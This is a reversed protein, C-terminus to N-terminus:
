QVSTGRSSSGGTGPSPAQSGGSSPGMPESLGDMLGFGRIALSTQWANELAQIYNAQLQFWTRQSILVQPYAAAMKQYSMQYLKYAQEARPLMELKYQQVTVRASEYDRFLTAVDRAIQLKLRALEHKTSEIEARAVAVNGQNRNFIPLQVGIQAGGQLGTARFPNNEVLPSYNQALIGTVQLDPIVAKKAQSLAAEAREAAQEALKVEPSDRLTTALWQDYNLDPVADLDGDLRTLSLGPKGVVAALM